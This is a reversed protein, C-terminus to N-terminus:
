LYGNEGSLTLDLQALFPPLGQDQHLVRRRFCLPFFQDKWLSDPHSKQKSQVVGSLGYKNIKGLTYTTLIKYTFYSLTYNFKCSAM